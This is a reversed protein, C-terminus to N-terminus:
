KTLEALAKALVAILGFLSGLLTGPLIPKTVSGDPETVVEIMRM